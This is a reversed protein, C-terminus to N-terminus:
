DLSLLLLYAKRSALQRIAKVLWMVLIAALGELNITEKTLFNAGNQLTKTLVAALKLDLWFKSSKKKKKLQVGNVSGM